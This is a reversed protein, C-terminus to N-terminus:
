GRASRVAVRRAGRTALLPLMVDGTAARAKRDRRLRLAAVQAGVM